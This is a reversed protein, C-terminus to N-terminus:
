RSVTRLCLSCSLLLSHTHTLSHTLSHTHTHTQTHAHTRAHTRAHTHAHIHTHTITHTQSQTHTHTHTHTHSRTRAHIYYCANACSAVARMCARVTRILRLPPPHIPISYGRQSHVAESVEAASFRLTVMGASNKGFDFIWARTAGWDGYGLRTLPWAAIPSLVESARLPPVNTPVLPGFGTGAPTVESVPAWAAAGGRLDDLVPASSWGQVDLRADFTEGVSACAFM